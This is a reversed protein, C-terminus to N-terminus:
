TPTTLRKFKGFIFNQFSPGFHDILLQALLVLCVLLFDTWLLRTTRVLVFGVVLVVIIAIITYILDLKHEAHAPHFTSRLLLWLSFKVLFLVAVALLLDMFIRGLITLQYIPKNAAITAAACAHLFVGPIQENVGTPHFWDPKNIGEGAAHHEDRYTDGIVIMRNEIKDREDRYFDPNMGHLVDYRIPDLWGYDIISTPEVAWNWFSDEHRLLADWDLGALASSMSRLPFGGKATVWYVARDPDKIGIFAALRMYRDDGLWEDPRSRTRFVGLLIPIHTQKSRELCWQFFSNDNPHILEGDKPSFDVDLGISRAGLETFVEILKQLPARPTAVGKRGNREWSEPQLKGLDVVLVDPRTTWMGRAAMRKQLVTYTWNEAAEFPRWHELSTKIGILVFMTVIPWGLSSRLVYSFKIRPKGNPAVM